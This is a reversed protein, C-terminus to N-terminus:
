ENGAEQILREMEADSLGFYEQMSRLNIAPREIAYEKLVKLEKEEWTQMTLEQPTPWTDINRQLYPEIQAALEDIRRLVKDPDFTVTCHYVFRGIFRQRFGENALLGLILSNDNDNSGYGKTNLFSSFIDMFEKPGHQPMHYFGWDLDYLIWRWKGDISRSKWFKINSLDRNAVYMEITCWDIYNDIDIRDAVYEYNERVSLDHTKVYEILATYEENSGMVVGGEGELLDIADPDAEHHQAIFHENLKEMLDYIGWYQGNIFLISKRGTQIDIDSVAQILDTQLQSRILSLDYDQGGNRLLLGKYDTYPLGPFVQYDFARKGYEGRAIVSFSKKNYARSYAGFIRIGVDQSIGVTGDTEILQIHAPREWDQWYNAGYHPKPETWGPGDMYIGTEPDFLNAPDTVLSVVPLDFEEGVLYTSCVASSPLYGERYAIARIATTQGIPIPGTYPISDQKPLTGDLTYYISADPDATILEVTQTGDYVGTKVSFVPEAAMGPYGDANAAGPTPQDCLVFSLSDGHRQYSLGPGMPPMYCRDAVRDSPDTLVVIDGEVSLSFGTHLNENPDSAVSDSAYLTLYQGAPLVRSPFEWRGLAYTRDTLGWGTLDIDQDSRNYLEIWDPYEGPADELVSTNNSMVESIIVPSDMGAYLKEQFANWGDATNPYGPTPQAYAEWRDDAPAQAYSWDYKLGGTHAKAVIQGYLNSLFVSEGDQSLKFDAHLEKGPEARNKGSLFVVLYGNPGIETRPFEWGKPRTETDTLGWGTLDITQESPNYLEVWDSFDGNEDRITITNVSMIENIRVPSVAQRSQLFAARGEGTNPFGPTCEESPEWEGTDMDLAYSQDSDMEPYSVKQIESGDARALMVIRDANKLKFSAHLEASSSPRGDAYIIVYEEPKLAWNPLVYKAPIRLNDTLAFDALNISQGTPNYLEIWDSYRGDGTTVTGKNSAMLETIMPFVAGEGSLALSANLTPIMLAFIVILVAIVILMVVDLWRHMRYGAQHNQQM